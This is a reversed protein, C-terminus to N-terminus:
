RKSKVANRRPKKSAGQGTFSTDPTIDGVDVIGLQSGREGPLSEPETFSQSLHHSELDQSLGSKELLLLVEFDFNSPLVGIVSRIRDLHTPM